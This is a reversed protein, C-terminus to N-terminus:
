RGGPWAPSPGSLTPPWRRRRVRCRSVWTGFQSALSGAKTIMRGALGSFERVIDTATAKAKGPLTSLWTGFKSALDGLAAIIRGPLTAFLRVIEDILDPIISNGVLINVMREFAQQGPRHCGARQLVRLNWADDWGQKIDTKLNIAWTSVAQIIGDLSERRSRCAAGRRHPIHRRDLRGAGKFGAAISTGIGLLVRRDGDEGEGARQKLSAFATGDDIEDIHGKLSQWATGDTIEDIHGKITGWATGNAVEDVRKGFSEAAGATDLKENIDDVWGAVDTLMSILDTCVDILTFLLTRNTPTDLSEVFLIVQEVLGHIKDYLKEADDFWQKITDKNKPDALWDRIKQVDAKIKTFINDGTDKGLGFLDGILGRDGRDASRHDEHVRRRGDPLDWSTSARGPKFEGAKRFGKVLRDLWGVFQEILPSADRFLQM